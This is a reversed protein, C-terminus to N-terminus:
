NLFKKYLAATTALRNETSFRQEVLRRGNL